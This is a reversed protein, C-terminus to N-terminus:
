GKAGRSLGRLGVRLKTRFLALGHGSSDSRKVIDRGRYLYYLALQWRRYDLPYRRLYRPLVQFRSGHMALNHWPLVRSGTLFVTGDYGVFIDTVSGEEPRLCEISNDEIQLESLYQEAVFFANFTTTAVLEYGKSKGLRVMARISSGQNVSTDAPQVFDVRNPITQNFEILVVRPRYAVVAEWVHYDNGDIDISLLDFEQPIDTESLIADLAGKGTWGVIRNLSTVRPEAHWTKLLKQFQKPDSEILVAHWGDDTILSYSNSLYRGDWAGFEVGWGTPKPLRDLIARLVLEEGDQSTSKTAAGDSAALPSTASM